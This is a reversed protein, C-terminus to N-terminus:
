FCEKYNSVIVSTEISYGINKILFNYENNLKLIKNDISGKIKEPSIVSNELYKKYDSEDYFNIIMDKILYKWGAYIMDITKNNKEIDFKKNGSKLLEEINCNRDYSTGIPLKYKLNKHLDNILKFDIEDQNENFLTSIEKFILEYLGIYQPPINSMEHSIMEAYKSHYKRLEELADDNKDYGKNKLEELMYKMRIASPPHNTIQFKLDESLNLLQTIKSSLIEHFYFAFFYNSRYYNIAFLDSFTESIITTLTNQSISKDISNDICYIRIKAYIKQYTAKGNIKTFVTHGYEHFILPWMLPNHHYVVTMSLVNPTSGVKQKIEEQAESYYEPTKMKSETFNFEKINKFYISTIKMEDPILLIVEDVMTKLTFFPPQLPIYKMNDFTSELAYYTYNLEDSIMKNDLDSINEPYNYYVKIIKNEIDEKLIKLWQYIFDIIKKNEETEFIRCTELYMQADIVRMYLNITKIFNFKKIIIEGQNL